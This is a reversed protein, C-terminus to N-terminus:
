VYSYVIVLGAQGVDGASHGRGSQANGWDTINGPGGSGPAAFPATGGQVGSWGLNGHNRIHGRSGGFYGQGGFGGGAWHGAGNIHGCGPSGQVSFNAGAFSNGGHGGSHSYNRNAGYGGSASLYSGFSSTGGDGAATYYAAYSGGGGVTVAVSGIGAVNIFKEAYGGAGGAECYGAGGGGGGILKVHVMSAGPNYWTSSSSYSDIKILRGRDTTQNIVSPGTQVTSDGFTVAMPPAATTLLHSITPETGDCKDIRPWFFELRSTNDGCYYHYCRHKTNTTGAQWKADDPINGTNAKVIVQAGTAVTYFGSEPHRATGNYNWPFVHGVVLYWLNQTLDGINRYDFYPNTNSAGDSLHTVAGTSSQTGLYFTGGTTASTRRVWVSFRYLQAPDINVTNTDWGGDANGNGSPVTQWVMASAGWPNTGQYRNQEGADGNANFMGVGGSGATWQSPALLNYDTGPGITVAM